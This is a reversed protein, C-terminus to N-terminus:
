AFHATTNGRIPACGTCGVVWNVVAHTRAEPWGLPATLLAAVDYTRREGDVFLEAVLEVRTCVVVEGDPERHVEVPNLRAVRDQRLTDNYSAWVWLLTTDNLRHIGPGRGGSDNVADARLGPLAMERAQSSACAAFGGGDEPPGVWVPEAAPPADGNGACGALAPALVILLVLRAPLRM